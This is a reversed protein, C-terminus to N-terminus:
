TGSFESKSKGIFRWGKLKTIGKCGGTVARYSVVAYLWAPLVEFAVAAAAVRPSDLPGAAVGAWGKANTAVLLGGAVGAVIAVPLASFAGRGRGAILVVCWPLLGCAAWLSFLGLIGLANWPM